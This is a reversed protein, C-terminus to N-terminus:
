GLGWFWTACSLLYVLAAFGLAGLRPTLEFVRGKRVCAAFIFLLILLYLVATYGTLLMLFGTLNLLYQM